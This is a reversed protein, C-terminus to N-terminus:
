GQASMAQKVRVVVSVGVGCEKATKVMGQGRALKGRIKEETKEDTKPRGIAKGSRTGTKKARKVGAIIRERIIDREFEAFVCAMQIMARGAPTSGDIGQQLYLQAVSFADLEAMIGTVDHTSRGIRDISWAMVVDFKRRKADKVMRDLEPRQKGFKAGSVGHDRYTEVISWGRRQAEDQLALVQNDTTQEAKSTRLYLAARLGKRVM